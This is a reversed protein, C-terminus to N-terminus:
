VVGKLTKWYYVQVILQYISTLGIKVINPHFCPFSTSLTRGYKAKFIFGNSGNTFVKM